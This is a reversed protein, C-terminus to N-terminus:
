SANASIESVLAATDFYYPRIEAILGDEVVFTEVVPMRKPNAPDALGFPVELFAAARRGGVLVDGRVVSDLAIGSFLLSLLKVANERGVHAGGYPLSAAEHVTVDPHLIAAIADLDNSLAADYFQNVVTATNAETSM